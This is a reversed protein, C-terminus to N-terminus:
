FIELPLEEFFWRYDNGENLSAQELVSLLSPINRLPFHMSFRGYYSLSILNAGGVTM